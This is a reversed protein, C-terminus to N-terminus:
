QNTATWRGFKRTVSPVHNLERLTTNQRFPIDLLSRPGENKKDELIETPSVRTPGSQATAPSRERSRPLPPSMAIPSGPTLDLIDDDSDSLTFDIKLSQFTFVSSPVAEFRSILPPPEQTTPRTFEPYNPKPSTSCTEKFIPIIPENTTVTDAQFTWPQSPTNEPHVALSRETIAISPQNVQRELRRQLKMLKKHERIRWGRNQSRLKQRASKHKRKVSKDM